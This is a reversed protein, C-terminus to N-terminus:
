PHAFTGAGRQRGLVEFEGGPDLDRQVVSRAM